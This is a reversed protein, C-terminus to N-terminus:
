SHRGPGADCCETGMPGAVVREPPSIPGTAAGTLVEVTEPSKVKLRDRRGLVYTGLAAKVVLGEIGAPRVGRM